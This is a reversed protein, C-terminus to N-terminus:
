DEQSFREEKWPDGHMHYGHQEWFGPRNEIMFELGKLWKASKWFYLHPVLMRVPVGHQRPLPYGNLHFALLVDEKLLDELPLNTTYGGYAYQMVFRAQPHPHVKDVIVQFPVGEWETGLLTWRTVCHIDVRVTKRPLKMLAKWDLRLPQEVAGFVELHWDEPRIDPTEGHTLVPFKRTVYQGPPVRERDRTFRNFFQVQKRRNGRRKPDKSAM